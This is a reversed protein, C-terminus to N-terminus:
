SSTAYYMMDGIRRILEQFRSQNTKPETIHRIANVLRERRVEGRHKNREAFYRRWDRSRTLLKQFIVFATMTNMKRESLWNRDVRSMGVESVATIQVM